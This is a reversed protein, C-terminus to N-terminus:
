HTIIMKPDAGVRSIDYEEAILDERPPPVGRRQLWTNGM